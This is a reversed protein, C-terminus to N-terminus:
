SGLVLSTGPELDISSNHFFNIIDNNILNKWEGHIPLDLIITKKSVDFNSIVYVYKLSDGSLNDNWIDITPLLKNQNFVKLEYEGEFVPENIKLEIIKKKNSM